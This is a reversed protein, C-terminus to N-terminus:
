VVLAQPLSKVDIDSLMPGRGTLLWTASIGYNEVLYTLWAMQFMGSEPKTKCVWVNRKNLGYLRIFTQLGRIKRSAKLYDIAIFFRKVIKQSDPTNM